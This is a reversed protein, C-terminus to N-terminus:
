DLELFNNRNAYDIRQRLREAKLAFFMAVMCIALVGYLVMFCASHVGVLDVALGFLVPLTCGGLAGLAAVLGGVSGMQTPYNDHILKYVSARGFGQAIGIIFILATFVWVNIEISLNVDSDVGHITMTTPPYSLFFLCILCVWFVTWNVSRGGYKDAFWGGIARVMSSTAVFLLTLAMAQKLELGYAHIYYQPLWLMLALFSGFVFYYYLGLRWIHSKRILDVLKYPQPEAEINSQEENPAFLAFLIAVLILGAGYSLGLMPWGWLEVILPALVLNVAAGANGAGFIGLATGQRNRDFWYTVYRIGITFSVGSIGIWLGLGIYAAFSEVQTLLFLAPAVALMQIVFLKKASYRECLFGVPIRLLAGTLMPAAFLLGLETSTLGLSDELQLGVIIYITWVSFNAAFALTALILARRAGPIDINM